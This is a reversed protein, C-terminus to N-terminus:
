VAEEIVSNGASLLRTLATACRSVWITLKPQAVSVGNDFHACPVDIHNEFRWDVTRRSVRFITM